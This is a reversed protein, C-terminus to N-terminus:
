KTRFMEVLSKLRLQFTFPDYWPKQKQPTTTNAATAQQRAIKLANAVNIRGYGYYSDKGPNGLDDASNRIINMVDENRLNPNVSLILGALGSVHPCSMSTGSLAAYRGPLYTSPIDVGPASVDIHPGYNSFEARMDHNDTAAVSLVQPYNAPFSPQSTNDNGSAAVLVVGKNYAYRIADELVSSPHYNGVSMNIVKAGHDTAWKIGKAIDFSSGTGDAGIAKVPMIKNRWSVGAIGIGNNTGAAIIGAVHTGHGNDDQPNDTDNLVNFGPVLKNQLDPHNLDAGTDVTAVIVDAKGLSINWATDASIDPLNWQYQYYLPDNPLVNPLYIFNHEAFEVDKRTRFYKILADTDMNESKFIWYSDWNKKVKGSIEKNIKAIEAESPHKKFKVTVEKKIAHSKDQSNHHITLIHPSKSLEEVKQDVQGIYDVKPMPHPEGGNQISSTKPHSIQNGGCAVTFVVFFIALSLSGVIRGM